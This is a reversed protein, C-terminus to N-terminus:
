DARASPDLEVHVPLRGYSTPEYHVPRPVHVLHPLAAAPGAIGVAILLAVLGSSRRIRGRRAGERALRELEIPQSPANAPGRYPRDFMFTPGRAAGRTGVVQADVGSAQAEGSSAVAEGDLAVLDGDTAVLKGDLAVLDGDLAVLEGDTAM